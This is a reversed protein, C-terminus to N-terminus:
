SAAATQTADTDSPRSRPARPASSEPNTAKAAPHPESSKSATSPDSSTVANAGSPQEVGAPLKAGPQAGPKETKNAATPEAPKRAVESSGGAFPSYLGPGYFYGGAGLAAVLLVGVLVPKRGSAAHEVFAPEGDETGLDEGFEFASPAEAFEQVPDSPPLPAPAFSASPDGPDGYDAPGPQVVQQAAAAFNQPDQSATFEVDLGLFDGANQAGQFGQSLVEGPTARRAGSAPRNGTYPSPTEPESPLGQDSTLNQFDDAAM